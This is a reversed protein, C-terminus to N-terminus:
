IFMYLSRLKLFLCPRLPFVVVPLDSMSQWSLLKIEQGSRVAKWVENAVKITLTKVFFPSKKQETPFHQCHGGWYKCMQHPGPQLQAGALSLAFRM